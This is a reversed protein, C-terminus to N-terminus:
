ELGCIEKVKALYAAAEGGTDEVWKDWVPKIMKTLEDMEEDTPYLIELGYEEVTRLVEDQRTNEEVKKRMYADYKAFEDLFVERYSDPLAALADPNVYWLYQGVGLPIAELYNCPEYWKTRETCDISTIVGDVVGLQMAQYAESHACQTVTGGAAKVFMRGAPGGARIKMGSWDTMSPPAKTTVPMQLTPYPGVSIMKVGYKNFYMEDMTPRLFDTVAQAQQLTRILLPLEDIALLPLDSPTHFGNWDAGCMEVVGKGVAAPEQDYGIGLEGGFYCNIIFKGNTREKVNPVVEDWFFEFEDGDHPGNLQSEVKWTITPLETPAPTPAPAPAPKACGAVVLSLVVLGMVMLVMAKRLKSM